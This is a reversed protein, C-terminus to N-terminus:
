ELDQEAFLTNYVIVAAEARNVVKTPQFQGEAVGAFVGQAELWAVENAAWEPVLLKDEYNSKEMVFKNLKEQAVVEAMVAARGAVAAIEQRNIVKIPMFTGDPYGTFIGNDVATQVYPAFWDSAKVDSFGGKYEVLEYGLSVVAIKCFEARTFSGAPDFLDNGKGNVIGKQALGEIASKAFAFEDTLDTFVVAAPEEAVPDEVVPEEVIPEIAEGVTIEAVLKFVTGFEGSEKVKRYVVIEDTEPNEDNDIALGNVEYAIVYKLSEAMIDTLMQPDIPYGDSAVMAVEAEEVKLGALERLVYALSVGKVTVTKEGTKSNYIYEEDIQAEEPMAKLEDLTLSLEKEVGAGNIVVVAEGEAFVVQSFLMAIVLLLASVKKFKTM